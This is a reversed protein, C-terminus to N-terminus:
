KENRDGFSIYELEHTVRKEVPPLTMYDGYLETLFKDYGMPIPYKKGEFIHEETKDFNDKAYLRFDSTVVYKDYEGEYSYVDNLLKDVYKIRLKKPIIKCITSICVGGFSFNHERWKLTMGCKLLCNSIKLKINCKKQLKADKPYPVLPFVDIFIGNHFNKGEASKEVMHTNNKRIKFWSNIYEIDTKYSQFFYKSNKNEQMIKELKYYDNLPMLVDIDDDWPIFGNHRIAGLLTGFALYYKLNNKKCLEDFYDLIELEVQKLKELKKTDM